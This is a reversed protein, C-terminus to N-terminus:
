NGSKSMGNHQKIIENVQSKKLHPEIWVCKMNICRLEMTDLEIYWEYPDYFMIISTDTEIVPMPIAEGISTWFFSDLPTGGFVFVDFGNYWTRGEYNKCTVEEDEDNIYIELEVRSSDSVIFHTNIVLQSDDEDCYNKTDEIFLDLLQKTCDTLRINGEDHKENHGGSCCVMLGVAFVSFIIIALKTNPYIHRNM